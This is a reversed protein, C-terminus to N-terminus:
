KEELHQWRSEFDKAGQELWCRIGRLSEPACLKTLWDQAEEDSLETDYNGRTGTLKAIGEVVDHVYALPRGSAESLVTMMIDVYRM